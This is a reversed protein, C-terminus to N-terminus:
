VVGGGVGVGGVVWLFGIEVPELMQLKNIANKNLISFLYSLIKLRNLHETKIDSM